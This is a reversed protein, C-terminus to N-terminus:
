KKITIYIAGNPNDASKKDIIISEIDGPNVAELNKVVEGNVTVRPSGESDNDVIVIIGGGESSSVTATGNGSKEIRFTQTGANTQIQSSMTESKKEPQEKPWLKFSVPLSFVMKVKKGDQVAPEWNPMSRAVRVAEEDLDASGTSKSIKFDSLSGDTNVEFSVVAKGERKENEASKPYKLNDMLFKFMAAEGGPFSAYKDPAKGGIETSVSQQQLVPAEATQEVTIKETVKGNGYLTMSANEVSSLMRAVSPLSTISLAAALAPVLALARVVRRSAKTPNSKYMM